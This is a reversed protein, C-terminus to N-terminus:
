KMGDQGCESLAGQLLVAELFIEFWLLSVQLASTGKLLAM